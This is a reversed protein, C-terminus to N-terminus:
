RLTNSLNIKMKKMMEKETQEIANPEAETRLHLHLYCDETDM